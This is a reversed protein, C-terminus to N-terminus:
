VYTALSIRRQEPRTGRLWTRIIAFIAASVSNTTFSPALARENFSESDMLRLALAKGLNQGPIGFLVIRGRDRHSWIHALVGEVSKLASEANVASALDCLLPAMNDLLILDKERYHLYLTSRGINAKRAVDIM